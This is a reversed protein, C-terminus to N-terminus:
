QVVGTQFWKPWSLSASGKAPRGRVAAAKTPATKLIGTWFKARYKRYLADWDLAKLDENVEYDYYDIAAKLAARQGDTEFVADKFTQRITELGTTIHRKTQQVTGDRVPTLNKVEKIGFQDFLATFYEERRYYIHFPASVFMPWYDPALLSIGFVKKHGESLVSGTALGNPVKYYISAGPRLVSTLNTLLGATDYIHEFVDNVAAIDFPGHQKLLAVARRSSADCNIFTCDAEGKANVEALRLWKDSIDIGVASCGLNAFEIAFSGYATGVDLFKLGDIKIDLHKHFEDVVLKARKRSNIQFSYKDQYEALLTETDKIGHEMAFEHLFDQYAM